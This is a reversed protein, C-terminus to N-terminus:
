FYPYSDLFGKLVIKLTKEESGATRIASIDDIPIPFLGHRSMLGLASWILSRDMLKACSLLLLFLRFLNVRLSFLSNITNVQLFLTDKQKCGSWPEAIWNNSWYNFRAAIHLSRMRYDRHWTDWWAACTRATWSASRHSWRVGNTKTKFWWAVTGLRIM